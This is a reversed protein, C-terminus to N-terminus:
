LAKWRWRGLWRKSLHDKSVESIGQTGRSSDAGWTEAETTLWWLQKSIMRRQAWSDEQHGPQAKRTVLSLLARPYPTCSSAWGRARSLTERSSKAAFYLQKHRSNWWVKSTSPDVTCLLVNGRWHRRDEHGRGKGSIRSFFGFLM